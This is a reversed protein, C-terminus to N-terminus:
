KKLPHLKRDFPSARKKNLIEQAKQELPLLIDQKANVFKGHQTEVLSCFVKIYRWGHLLISYYSQSM